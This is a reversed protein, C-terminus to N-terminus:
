SVTSTGASSKRSTATSHADDTVTAVGVSVTTNNAGIYGDTNFAEGGAKVDLTGNGSDGVKLNGSIKWPDPQIEGAGGPVM